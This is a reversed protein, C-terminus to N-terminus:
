MFTVTVNRSKSLDGPIACTVLGVGAPIALGSLFAYGNADTTRQMFDVFGAAEDPRTWFNVATNPLPVGPSSFLRILVTRLANAGITRKFVAPTRKMQPGRGRARRHGILGGLTVAAVAGGDLWMDWNATFGADNGPAPITSPFTPYTIAGLTSSNGLTGSSGVDVYNDGSMLLYYTLGSVVNVPTGLTAVILGAGQALLFTATTLLNGASDYVVGTLSTAALWDNIFTQFTTAMGSATAIYGNTQYVLGTNAPQIYDGTSVGASYGVLQM